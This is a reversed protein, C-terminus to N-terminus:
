FVLGSPTAPSNEKRMRCADAICSKEGLPIEVAHITRSEEAVDPLLCSAREESKLRDPQQAAGDSGSKCRLGRWRCLM